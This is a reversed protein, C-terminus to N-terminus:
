IPRPAADIAGLRIPAAWWGGHRTRIADALARAARADSVLAFCTAGSGSMRALRVNAAGRLEELVAGIEPALDIAAPELDNTMAMLGAIADQAAPWAPPPLADLVPRAAGLADFRAYVAATALAVGPNVLVAHLEPLALAQIVEGAGTMWAPQSAICVPIDAGLRAAIAGLEADDAKLDFLARAGRLAAAADASGGGIGSAVPLNKELSVRASVGLAALARSILNEGTLAAAFPGTLTLANEGRELTLVDGVDAFSVISALPHRGNALPAGVHLSLNIKAPAFVRVAVPAEAAIQPANPPRM